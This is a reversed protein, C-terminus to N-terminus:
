AADSRSRLAIVAEIEAALKRLQKALHRFTERKVPDVALRAILDCDAADARFKALKAQFDRMTGGGRIKRHAFRNLVM